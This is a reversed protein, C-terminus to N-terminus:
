NKIIKRAEAKTVEEIKYGKDQNLPCKQYDRKRLKRNTSSFIAM